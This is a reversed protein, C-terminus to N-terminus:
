TAQENEGRKLAEEINGELEVEIVGRTCECKITGFETPFDDLYRGVNTKVYEDIASAGVNAKEVKIWVIDGEIQRATVVALFIKM